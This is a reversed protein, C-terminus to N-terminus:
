PPDQVLYPRLVSALVYPPFIRLAGNGDAALLLRDGAAIGARRRAIAPMNLHGRTRIPRSPAAGADHTSAPAAVVLRQTTVTFTILDGPRWLLTNLLGAVAMRGRNDIATVAYHLAPGPQRYPVAPLPLPTSPPEPSPLHTGTPSIARNM